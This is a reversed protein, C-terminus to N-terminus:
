PQANAKEVAARVAALPDGGHGNKGAALEELRRELTILQTRMPVMQRRLRSMDRRRKRRRAEELERGMAELEVALRGLERLTPTADKSLPGLRKLIAALYSRYAFGEPTRHNKYARPSAGTASKLAHM